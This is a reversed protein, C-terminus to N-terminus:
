TRNLHGAFICIGNLHARRECSDVGNAGNISVTSLTSQWPLEPTVQCHEALMHCTCIENAVSRMAVEIMRITEGLGPQM